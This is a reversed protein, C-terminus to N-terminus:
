CIMFISILYHVVVQRFRDFEHYWFFYGNSCYKVKSLTKKQLDILLFTNSYNGNILLSYVSVLDVFRGQLFWERWTKSWSSLTSAWSFVQTLDRKSLVATTWAQLKILFYSWCLHKETFKAFFKLVAIKFSM